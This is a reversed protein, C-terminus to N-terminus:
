TAQEVSEWLMNRLIERAEQVVRDGDPPDKPFELIIRIGHEEETLRVFEQGEM